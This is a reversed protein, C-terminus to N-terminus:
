RESETVCTGNRYPCCDALSPAGRRTQGLAVHGHGGDTQGPEPALEGVAALARHLPVGIESDPAPEGAAPSCPVKRGRDWAKWPRRRTEPNGSGLGATGAAPALARETGCPVPRHQVTGDKSM